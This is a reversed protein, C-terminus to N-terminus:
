FRRNAFFEGLSRAAHACRSRLRLLEPLRATPHRLSSRLITMTAFHGDPRLAAMFDNAMDEGALDTVARVCFLPLQRSQVRDAVGAAEMEVACGGLARLRSKQAATQAIYDVSWIPGAIPHSILEATTRKEATIIETGVVVDGIELASDLAGCFGTSVVADPTFDRVAADVAAAAQKWGIGNAVLIVENGALEAARAWDVAVEARRISRAQALIGTFEMRDAAVFVLRM